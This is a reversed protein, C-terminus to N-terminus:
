LSLLDVGALDPRLQLSCILSAIVSVAAVLVLNKEEVVQTSVKGTALKSHHDKGDASIDNHRVLRCGLDVSIM